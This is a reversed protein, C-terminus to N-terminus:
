YTSLTVIPAAELPASARQLLDAVLRRTDKGVLPKTLVGDAGSVEAQFPARKDEVSALILVPVHRLRAIKRARECISFGNLGALDTGLIMLDPTHTRLHTLTEPGTTTLSIDHGESGLVLELLSHPGTELEAILINAM